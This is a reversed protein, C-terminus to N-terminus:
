PQGHLQLLLALTIAAMFEALPLHYDRLDWPITWARSFLVRRHFLFVEALLVASALFGSWPGVSNRDQGSPAM